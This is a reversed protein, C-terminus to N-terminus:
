FGNIDPCLALLLLKELHRLRGGSFIDSKESEGLEKRPKFRIRHKPSFSYSFDPKIRSEGLSVQWGSGGAAAQTRHVVVAWRWHGREREAHGV